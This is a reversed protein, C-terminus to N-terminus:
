TQFDMSFVNPGQLVKLNTPCNGYQLLVLIVEHIFISIYHLVLHEPKFAHIM